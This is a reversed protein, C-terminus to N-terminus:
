VSFQYVERESDHPNFSVIMTFCRTFYRNSSHNHIGRFLHDSRWLMPGRLSPVNGAQEVVFSCTKPGVVGADLAMDSATCPACPANNDTLCVV